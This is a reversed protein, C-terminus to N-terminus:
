RGLCDDLLDQIQATALCIYTDAAGYYIKLEGDEELIAGCSFIVNPVDGTREYMQSPSIIPVEGRGVLKAPDELDFLACGLRYIAGGPTRKVGHYILLWGEETEIPPPGAGIKASDWYGPRTEMVCKACGWYTLDPSYTVWINAGMGTIPRDYCVYNGNIKRPFLVADKNEPETILCVREFTRFDTTKALAVRPAHHSYATYVIYYVGDMETIRPDEIGRKEYTKFPEEEIPEMVPNHSVNFHFGDRSKALFLKSKGELGEVRLLLLYDNKYKAAAANFVANCPDPINYSTIIPNGEYRTVMNKRNAM